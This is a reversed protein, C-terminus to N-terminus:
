RAVSYGRGQMCAGYARDYGEKSKSYQYAGGGVGAALGGVVAGTAAGRGAGGGSAAGIAAGGGAGLAGGLLTGVAAGKLADTAPDYNTQQKAWAQCESIDRSQQQASQGKAPYAAMPAQGSGTACGGLFIILGMAALPRKM